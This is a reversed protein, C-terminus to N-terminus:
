CIKKFFVAMYTKKLFVRGHEEMSSSEIRRCRYESVANVRKVMDDCPSSANFQKEARVHYRPNKWFHYKGPYM